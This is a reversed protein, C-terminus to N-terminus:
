PGAGHACPWSSGAPWGTGGAGARPPLARSYVWGGPGAGRARRGPVGPNGCIMAPLMAGEARPVRVEASTRRLQQASGSGRCTPPGGPRPAPPARSSPIWVRRPSLARNGPPRPHAWCRKPLPPPLRFEPNLPHTPSGSSPTPRLATHGITLPPRRGRRASPSTGGGDLAGRGGSLRSRTRGPEWRGQRHGRM